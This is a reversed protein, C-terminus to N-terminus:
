KKAIQRRAGLSFVTSYFPFTSVDRPKWEGSHFRSPSQVSYVEAFVEPVTVPSLCFFIPWYSVPVDGTVIGSFIAPHVEAGTGVKNRVYSGTPSQQKVQKNMTKTEAQRILVM